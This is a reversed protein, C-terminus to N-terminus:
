WSEAGSGVQAFYRSFDEVNNCRVAFEDQTRTADKQFCMRYRESSNWHSGGRLSVHHCSTATLVFHQQQYSAYAHKPSLVDKMFALSISM